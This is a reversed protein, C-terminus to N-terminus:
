QGNHSTERVNQIFYSEIKKNDLGSKSLQYEPLFPM